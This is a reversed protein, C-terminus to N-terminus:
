LIVWAARGPIIHIGRTRGRDRYLLYSRRTHFGKSLLVASKISERSLVDLVARAETLTIPHSVPVSVLVYQGKKLGLEQLEDELIQEYHRSIGFGM